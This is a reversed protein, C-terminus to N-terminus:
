SLTVLQIKTDGSACGCAGAKPDLFDFGTKTPSDVFDITVGDLLRRCSQPIFLTLDGVRLTEDTSAATQEVSFTASLGSCGGPSVSLRFGATGGLGSMRVMREIFRKAPATLSVSTDENAAQTQM